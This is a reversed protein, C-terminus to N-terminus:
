LVSEEKIVPCYISFTKNKLMVITMVLDSTFLIMLVATVFPSFNYLYANMAPAFFYVYLVSLVCWFVAFRPCILGQLNHKETRYDWLMVHFVKLCFLGYLYEVLTGACVGFFLVLLVSEAFDVIFVQLTLAGIGYVPCLPLFRMTKRNEIVGRVTYAFATEIIFGIFSYVFFLNFYFLFLM